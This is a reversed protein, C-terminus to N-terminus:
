GHGEGGITAATGSHTLASLIADIKESHLMGTMGDIAASIRDRLGEDERVSATAIAKPSAPGIRSRSIAAICAQGTTTDGEDNAISQLTARLDRIIAEMREERGEGSTLGVPPASRSAHAILNLAVHSPINCGEGEEVQKAAGNFGAKRLEAVLVARANEWPPTGPNILLDRLRKIEANEGAGDMDTSALAAFLFQELARNTPYRIGHLGALCAVERWDTVRLEDGGRAPTRTNWVVIADAQLDRAVCAKCGACLADWTPDDFTTDLLVEVDASGCFPCPKLARTVEPTSQNAPM